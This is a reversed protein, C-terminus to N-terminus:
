CVVSVSDTQGRWDATAHCPQQVHRHPQLPDAPATIRVCADSATPLVPFLDRNGRHKCCRTPLPLTVGAALLKMSPNSGAVRHTDRRTSCATALLCGLESTNDSYHLSETDEVRTGHGMTVTNPAALGYHRQAPSANCEARSLTDTDTDTDSHNHTHQPSATQLPERPYRHIPTPPSDRFLECV